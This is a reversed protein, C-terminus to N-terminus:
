EGVNGPCGCRQMPYLGLASSGSGVGPRSRHGSSTSECARRIETPSLVGWDGYRVFRPMAHLTSPLPHHEEFSSGLRSPRQGAGAEGSELLDDAVWFCIRRDPRQNRDALAGPPRPDTRTPERWCNLDRWTDRRPAPLVDMSKKFADPRVHIPCRWAVLPPSTVLVRAPAIRTPDSEDM